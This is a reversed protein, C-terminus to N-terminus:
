RERKSPSALKHSQPTPAKDLLASSKESSISAKRAGPPKPLKTSVARVAMSGYNVIAVDYKFADMAATCLERVESLLAQPEMLLPPSGSQQKKDSMLALVFSARAQVIASSPTAKMVALVTEFGDEDIFAAREKPEGLASALFKLCKAHLETWLPEAKLLKVLARAGADNANDVRVQLPIRVAKWTYLVESAPSWPGWGGLNMARVRVQYAADPVLDAVRYIPKPPTLKVPKLKIEKEARAKADIEAQEAAAASEKAKLADREAQKKLKAKQLKKQAKDARRQMM